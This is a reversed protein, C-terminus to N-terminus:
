AVNAQKGVLWQPQRLVAYFVAILLLMHFAISLASSVLESYFEGDAGRTLTFTRATNVIGQIGATAFAFTVAASHVWRNWSRRASSTSIGETMNSEQIRAAIVPAYRTVAFAVVISSIASAPYMLGTFSNPYSETLLPVIFRLGDAIARLLFVVGLTRIGIELMQRESM